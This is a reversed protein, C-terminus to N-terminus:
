QAPIGTVVPSTPLRVLEGSEDKAVVAVEYIYGKGPLVDGDWLRTRGIRPFEAADVDLVDAFEVDISDSRRVVIRSATLGTARELARLDQDWRLVVGSHDASVVTLSTPSGPETLVVPEEFPELRAVLVDEGGQPGSTVVHDGFRGLTSSATTGVGVIEGGGVHALGCLEDIAAGGLLTAYTVEAGDPSIRAVFGDGKRQFVAGGGRYAVQPADITVPFEASGTSGCVYASGDPGLLVDAAEDMGAGGLYTAYEIESGDASFRAVFVDDFPTKVRQFSHKNTPLGNSTTYGTVVAAGAEDVAVAFGAEYGSHGFFTTYEHQLSEADIRTLFVDVWGGLTDQAVGSTTRMDTSGTMGTVYADGDPGVAIGHARDELEGGLYSIHDFSKGDTALRAVFGDYTGGGFSSRDTVGLDQSSTRGAIWVAGDAAVALSEAADVGDGGFLITRAVKGGKMHVLFADCEGNREGPAGETPQIGSSWTEGCVWYGDNPDLAVDHAIDEGFSGLLTIHTEGDSGLTAIMADVDKAPADSVLDKSSSQGVIVLSGDALTVVSHGRDDGSGGIRTVTPGSAIDVVAVVSVALAAGILVGLKPQIRVVVAKVGLPCVSWRTPLRLGIAALSRQKASRHPTLTIELAAASIRLAEHGTRM